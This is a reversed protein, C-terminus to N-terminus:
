TLRPLSRRGRRAADGHWGSAPLPHTTASAGGNCSRPPRPAFSAVLRVASRPHRSSRGHRPALPTVGDMARRMAHRRNGGADLAPCDMDAGAQEIGEGLATATRRDAHSGTGQRLCHQCRSGTIVAVQVLENRVARWRCDARHAAVCEREHGSPRVVGRADACDRTRQRATKLLAIGHTVPSRFWGKRVARWRLSRSTRRRGQM